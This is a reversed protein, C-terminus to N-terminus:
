KRSMLEYYMKEGQLVKIIADYEELTINAGNLKRRANVFNMEDRIIEEYASSPTGKDKEDLLRKVIKKTLYFLGDEKCTIKFNDKYRIAFDTVEQPLDFSKGLELIEEDTGNETLARMNYYYCQSRVFETRADTKSSILMCFRNLHIGEYYMEPKLEKMMKMLGFEQDNIIRYRDREKHLLQASYIRLAVLDMLLVILLNLVALLILDSLKYGDRVFILVLAVTVAQFVLSIILPAKYKFEYNLGDFLTIVLVCMMFYILGVAPSVGGLYVSMLIMFFTLVYSARSGVFLLIVLSIGPYIWCTEPILAMFLGTTVSVSFILSKLLDPKEMKLFYIYLAATVILSLLIDRLSRLCLFAALAILVATAVLSLVKIFKNRAEITKM